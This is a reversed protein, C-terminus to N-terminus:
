FRISLALALNDTDSGLDERTRSAVYALKLSSKKNVALGASIGYLLDRRRDNSRVGDIRSEGGEDYAASISTWWGRPSNYILHGQATFLPAQERKAGVFDDNDTYFFVSGTLEYSWPGRTHVVGLQPRIAFRNHGLNLLKDREYDGLPLTVAVAAGAITDIPHAARYERLEQPGLAPPGLFNISLRLRPDGLGTRGTSAPEGNLLGEWRTSMHPLRVDFRALKSLLDFAHLFSFITSKTNLKADEIRLVPDFFIDGDRHLYGVSAFNTGVPLPTWRRPEIDQSMAMKSLSLLFAAVAAHKTNRSM